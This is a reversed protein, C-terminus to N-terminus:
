TRFMPGPSAFFSPALGSACVVAYSSLTDSGQPGPICPFQISLGSSTFSSHSSAANFSIPPWIASMPGSPALCTRLFADSLYQSTPPTLALLVSGVSPVSCYSPRNPQLARATVRVSPIRCACLSPSPGSEVLLPCRAALSSLDRTLPMCSRAAM